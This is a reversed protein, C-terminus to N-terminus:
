SSKMMSMPMDTGCAHMANTSEYQRSVTNRANGNVPETTPITPAILSCKMCCNGRKTTQTYTVNINRAPIYQLYAYEEYQDNAHRHWVRANRKDVRVPRQRHQTRHGDQQRRAVACNGRRHDGIVKWLLSAPETRVHTCNKNQLLFFPSTQQRDGDKCHDLFAIPLTALVM